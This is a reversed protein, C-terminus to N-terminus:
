HSVCHRNSIPCLVFSACEAYVSFFAFIKVLIMHEWLAHLPKGGYILVATTLQILLGIFFHRKTSILLYRHSCWTKKCPSIILLCLTCLSSLVDDILLLLKCLIQEQKQHKVKVRHSSTSSNSLVFRNLIKTICVPLKCSSLHVSRAHTACIRFITQWHFLPYRLDWVFM